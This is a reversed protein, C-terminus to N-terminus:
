DQPLDLDPYLTKACSPCISHSFEAESHNEIYSEIQNWYGKDDRIKKCSACIPLFGSLKKVEDLAHQLRIVLENKEEEAKKRESIDLIVGSWIIQSDFKKESPMSTLQIWKILGSPLVIRVESQFLTGAQNAALDEQKLRELDEAHVLDWLINPRKSIQDADYEFIERCQPSIYIFRSRGDPWRVYDYLACPITNVLREYRQTSVKLANEVKIRKQREQELAKVRQKLKEYDSPQEM